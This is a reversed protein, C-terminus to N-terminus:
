SSWSLPGIDVLRPGHATAKGGAAPAIFVRGDCAADGCFVIRTFALYRGQPSWEPNSGKRLVLKPKGGRLPAVYIAGSRSFALKSGDPSVDPDAGVVIGRLNRGDSEISSIMGVGTSETPNRVFVIRRSDASWEPDAAANTVLSLGTGSTSITFLQEHSTFALRRGDPAWAVQAPDYSKRRTDFILKARSGDRAMVWIGNGGAFAIRRGDPSFDIWGDPADPAVVRHAPGGGAPILYIRTPYGPGWVAITGKPAPSEPKAATASVAVLAAVLCLSLVVTRVLSLTRPSDRRDLRIEKSLKRTFRSGREATYGAPGLPNPALRRRGQGGGGECFRAGDSWTCANVVRKVFACLRTPTRTRVDKPRSNRSM